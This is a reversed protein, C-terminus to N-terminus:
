PLPFPEAARPFAAPSARGPREQQPSPGLRGPAPRATGAHGHRSPGLGVRSRESRQQGIFIYLHRVAEAAEHSKGESKSTCCLLLSGVLRGLMSFRHKEPHHHRVVTAGAFCSSVQPLSCTNLFAALRAIRAMAREEVAEPQQQTFPLLLKLINQLELLGSAGASGVLVQLLSDLAELTQLSSLAQPARVRLLPTGLAWGTCVRLYLSTDMDRGDELGPLHLVSCLCAHLLGNKGDQPLLGARSMAAIAHM